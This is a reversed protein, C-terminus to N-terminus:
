SSSVINECEGELAILDMLGEPDGTEVANVFRSALFELQQFQDAAKAARQSADEMETLMQRFRARQEDTAPEQQQEQLIMDIAGTIGCVM